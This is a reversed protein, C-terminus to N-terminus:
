PFETNIPHRIDPFLIRSPKGLICPAPVSTSLPDVPFRMASIIEASKWPVSAAPTHTPIDPLSLFPSQETQTIGWLQQGPPWYMLMTKEMQRSLRELGRKM